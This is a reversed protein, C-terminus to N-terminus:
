AFHGHSKEQTLKAFTMNQILLYQSLSDFVSLDNPIPTPSHWELGTFSLNPRGPNFDTPCQYDVVVFLADVGLLTKNLACMRPNLEGQYRAREALEAPLGTGTSLEILGSEIVGFYSDYTLDINSETVLGGFGFSRKRSLLDESSRYRGLVYSLICNERHVMVFSIIPLYDNTNELVDTELYETKTSSLYKKFQAAPVLKKKGFHSLWSKRKFVLVREKSIEKRRPPALYESKFENLIDSKDRLERLFFEGAGTRFFASSKGFKRIDESLRAQLTKHPTKGHLHTPLENLRIAIDLMERATLPKREALIIRRAVDLYSNAV